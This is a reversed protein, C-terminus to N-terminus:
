FIHEFPHRNVQHIQILNLAGFATRNSRPISFKMKRADGIYFSLFFFRTIKSALEEDIPISKHSTKISM